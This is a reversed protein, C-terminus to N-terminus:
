VGEVEAGILEIREVLGVGGKREKQSYYHVIMSLTPVSSLLLLLAIYLAILAAGIYVLWSSNRVLESVDLVGTGELIGGIIIPLLVLGSLVNAMLYQLMFLGLTAWWRGQVLESSAVFSQLFGRGEYIRFPFYLAGFAYLIYMGFQGFPIFAAIVSIITLVVGLGINTGFVMWFIKKTREWVDSIGFGEQDDEMYLDVFVHIVCTLLTLGVGLLLGGALGALAFTFVYQLASNEDVNGTAAATIIDAGLYTFLAMAILVPPLAIRLLSRSFLRFNQRIFDFTVNLIEPVNRIERFNIRETTEM